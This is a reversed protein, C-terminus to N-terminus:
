SFWVLGLHKNNGPPATPRAGNNQGYAPPASQTIAPNDTRTIPGSEQAGPIDCTRINSKPAFDERNTNRSKSKLLM